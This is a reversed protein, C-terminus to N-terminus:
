DDRDALEEETEDEVAGAAEAQAALEEESIESNLIERADAELAEPVLLRLEIGGLAALPNEVHYPISAEELLGRALNLEEGSLFTAVVILKESVSAEHQAPDSATEVPEEAANLGRRSIEEDLCQRAIDVLDTRNTELLADDSLFGFHKRFDAATVNV